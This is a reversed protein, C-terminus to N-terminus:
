LRGNFIKKQKAWATSYEYALFIDHFHVVVGAGLQPLVKLRLCNVPTAVAFRYEGVLRRAKARNPVLTWIQWSFQREACLSPLLQPLSWNKVPRQRHQLL